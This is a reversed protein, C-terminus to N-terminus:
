GGFATSAIPAGSFSGDVVTAGGGGGAFSAGVFALLIGSM